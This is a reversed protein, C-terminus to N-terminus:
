ESLLQTTKVVENGEYEVMVETVMYQCEDTVETLLVSAVIFVDIHMIETVELVEHETFLTEDTEDVTQVLVDDVDHQDDLVELEAYLSDVKVEIEHIVDVQHEIIRVIHIEDSDDQEVQEHLLDDDCEVMEDNIQELVENVETVEDRLESDDDDEDHEGHRSRMLIQDTEDLVEVAHMLLVQDLMHQNILVLDDEVEDEHNKMAIEDHQM